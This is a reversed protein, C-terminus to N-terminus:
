QKMEVDDGTGLAEIKRKGRGTGSDSDLDGERYESVEWEVHVTGDASVGHGRGRRQSRGLSSGDLMEEFWSVDGSQGHRETREMNGDSQRALTNKETGKTDSEGSVPDELETDHPLLDLDELARIDDGLLSGM